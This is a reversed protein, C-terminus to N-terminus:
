NQEAGNTNQTIINYIEAIRLSDSYTLVEKARIKSLEDKFNRLLFMQKINKSVSEKKSRLSELGTMSDSQATAQEVENYVKTFTKRDPRRSVTLFLISALFVVTITFMKKRNNEAWNLWSNCAKDLRTIRMLPYVVKETAIKVKDYLARHREKRREKKEGM